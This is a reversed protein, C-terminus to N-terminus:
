SGEVVGIIPEEVSGDPNLALTEMAAERGLLEAEINAAKQKTERARREDVLYSAAGMAVNGVGRLVVLSMIVGGGIILGTQPMDLTLM